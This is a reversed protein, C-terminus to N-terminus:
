VVVLPVSTNGSATVFTVNLMGMRSSGNNSVLSTTFRVNLVGVPPAESPRALALRIM